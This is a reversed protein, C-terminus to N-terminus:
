KITINGTTNCFNPSAEGSSVQECVSPPSNQTFLFWAVGSFLLSILYFVFAYKSTLLNLHENMTRNAGRPPLWGPFRPKAPVKRKAGGPFGPRTSPKARYDPDVAKKARDLVLRAADAEASTTLDLYAFHSFLGLNGTTPGVKVTVVRDERGIPDRALAAWAESRAYESRLYHDSLVVLTRGARLSAQHMQEIFSGRFDWDQFFVSYGNEELVWAIWTAWARDAQNFSVFFDRKGDLADTM